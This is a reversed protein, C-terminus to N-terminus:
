INGSFFVVGSRFLTSKQTFYFILLPFFWAFRFKAKFLRLIEFSFSLSFHITHTSGACCLFWNIPWTSRLWAITLTHSCTYVHTHTHAVRNQLRFIWTWSLVKVWAADQRILRIICCRISGLLCVGVRVCVCCWVWVRKASKFLAKLM